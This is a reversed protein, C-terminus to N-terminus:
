QSIYGQATLLETNLPVAGVADRIANHSLVTFKLGVKNQM